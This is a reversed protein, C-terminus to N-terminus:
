CPHLAIFCLVGGDPRVDGSVNLDMGYRPAAASQRVHMRQLPIHHVVAAVCRLAVVATICAWRITVVAPM